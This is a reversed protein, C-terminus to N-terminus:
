CHVEVKVLWVVKRKLKKSLQKETKLKEKKLEFIKVDYQSLRSLSSTPRLDLKCVPCDNINQKIFTRNIKSSCHECGIMKSSRNGVWSKINFEEKKKETEQIRKVISDIKKSSITGITKYYPVAHDSYWGTDYRGIAGIAEDEDELPSIHHIKLNGHYSRSPDEKEDVNDYAFEFAAPMIDKENEVTMYTIAHGM